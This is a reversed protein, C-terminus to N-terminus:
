HAGDGDAGAGFPFDVYKVCRTHDGFIIVPLEALSLMTEDDTYGGVLRKGQDVIPYPGFPLYDKQKTKPHGRTADKVADLFGVELWDERM